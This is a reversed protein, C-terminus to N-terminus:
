PHLVCGGLVEGKWRARMADVARELPFVHSVHPELQGKAVWELLAALRPPRLGPDRVTALITPCGQVTLAKMMMLNTPLQNAKPAGRLGRGRAVDPTSVWGVLLFRGGFRACRLAELSVAGGVTDYVVDVGEGGTLAKVEDRFSVVAGEADTKCQVTHTAGQAAVVALKEASRGVAISKAGLLKCLHVAALGTAGSAGLVLVTEGPKVQGCRVLVHYATEYSGLLNCAQDFGWGEPMAHLANAPALAYTAYGGWRQYAGLSRPGTLLGDSFVRAGPRLVESSVASGVRLVEGAYELGPTYPPQAMHQYQGSTMLLDVWNVSASRVRVLVEEPGLEEPAAQEEFEIGKALAEEPSEAFARVVVRRGVPLKEGSVM